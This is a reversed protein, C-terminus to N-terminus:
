DELLLIHLELPGHVGITLVREIDATRSPGTIFATYNPANQMFSDLREAADFADAVIQSKRLICIHYECVMTAIRLEESPCNLVLTGTEAIGIDAYSFGIDVGALQSRMGSKICSFGHATSTDFLLKFDDEDLAPAAIIKEQKTACLGEADPSLHEECGSVKLRCAGQKGCLDISYNVAEEYTAVETVFAAAARAKDKFLETITQQKQDIKTAQTMTKQRM